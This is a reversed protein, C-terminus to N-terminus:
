DIDCEVLGSRFSADLRIPRVQGGESVGVQATARSALGMSPAANAGRFILSEGAKMEAIIAQAEDGSAATVGSAGAALISTTAAMADRIAKEVEPNGQLAAPATIPTSKGAATPLAPTNMMKLERFALDDVRWLIDGPPIRYPGGSSVGVLVGLASNREVFAYLSGFRSYQFNDSGDFVAVVCREIGTVPDKSTTVSWDGTRTACAAAMALLAVGMAKRMEGGTRQTAREVM